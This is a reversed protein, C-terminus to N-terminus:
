CCYLEKPITGKKVKGFPNGYKRINEIMRKNSETEIGESVLKFRVKLLELDVGIACGATCAGCLTCHYFSSDLQNKKQFLARARPSNKENLTALYSPCNSKCLGCLTCDEYTLSTQETDRGPSQNTM